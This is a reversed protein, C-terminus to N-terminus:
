DLPLPPGLRIIALLLQVTLIFLIGGSRLIVCVGEGERGGERGGEKM